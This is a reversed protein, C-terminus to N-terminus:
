AATISLITRWHHYFYTKLSRLFESDLIDLGITRSNGVRNYLVGVVMLLTDFLQNRAHVDEATACSASPM